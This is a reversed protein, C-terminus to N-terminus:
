SPLLILLLNLMEQKVWIKSQPTEKFFNSVTLNLLSYLFATFSFKM